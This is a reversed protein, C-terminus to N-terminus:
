RSSLTLVEEDARLDDEMKQDAGSVLLNGVTRSFAQPHTSKAQAALDSISQWNEHIPFEGPSTVLSYHAPTLVAAASEAVARHAPFAAVGITRRPQVLIMGLYRCRYPGHSV